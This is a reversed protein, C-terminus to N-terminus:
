RNRKPPFIDRDPVLPNVSEQKVTVFTFSINLGDNYALFYWM